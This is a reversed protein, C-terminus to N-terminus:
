TKNRMQQEESVKLQSIRHNSFIWLERRERIELYGEILTDSGVGYVKSLFRHSKNTIFIDFNNTVSFTFTGEHKLDQPTIKAFKLSLFKEYEEQTTHHGNEGKEIM